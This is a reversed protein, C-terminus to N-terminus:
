REWRAMAARLKAGPALLREMLMAKEAASGPLTGIEERLRREVNRMQTELRSRETALRRDAVARQGGPGAEELTSERRSPRQQRVSAGGPAEFSEGFAPNCGGASSRGDFADTDPLGEADSPENAAIENQINERVGTETLFVPVAENPEAGEGAHGFDAEADADKAREYDDRSSVLRAFDPVGHVVADGAERPAKGTDCPQGGIRAAYRALGEALNGEYEDAYRV